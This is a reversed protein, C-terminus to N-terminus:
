FRQLNQSDINNNNNNSIVAITPISSESKIAAESGWREATQGLLGNLVNRM